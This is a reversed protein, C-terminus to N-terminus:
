VVLEDLEHHLLLYGRIFISRPLNHKSSRKRPALQNRQRQLSRFTTEFSHIFLKLSSYLQDLSSVCDM